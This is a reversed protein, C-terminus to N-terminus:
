NIFINSGNDGGSISIVATKNPDATIQLTINMLQGHSICGSPLEFTTKGIINDFKVGFGQFNVNQSCTPVVDIQKVNVEPNFSYMVTPNTSGDLCYPVRKYTREDIFEIAWSETTADIATGCKV